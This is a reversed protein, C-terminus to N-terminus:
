RLKEEDEKIWEEIQEISREIDRIKDDTESLWGYAKDKWDENWASAIDDRLKDAHRRCSELAQTAKRHRDYNRELNAKVRAQFDEHKQTKHGKLHEWWIDHIERIEQIRHFCEQKHEGWMESKHESLMRGAKRLVQGLAKMEAIDPPLFGFLTAPRASEIESLVSNRHQESKIKRNEHESKQRRKVDECVSNFKGWLRERDEKRLPKLTKFMESIRKAHAWFNKYVRNFLNWHGSELAQIESDIAEANAKAKSEWNDM